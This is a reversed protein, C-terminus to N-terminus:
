AKAGLIDAAFLESNDQPEYGIETRANEFDWVRRTNDSLGYYVGFGIQAEMSRRVLHAMDRPSIWMQMSTEDFPRELFWGIRLCVMAMDFADAYYRALAEGYAKSAGYHSDPRVPQDPHIPWSRDRDYMGMVHNTSAFVVRPVGALRAAEFVNRTGVINAAHVQEWSAEVRREGALHVVADVGQVMSQVQAFDEIDGHVAEEGPALDSVPRTRYQLRLRYDDRLRPRLASGIDGTAGTILILKRDAPTAGAM